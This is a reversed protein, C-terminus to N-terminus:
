SGDSSNRATFCSSAQCVVALTCTGAASGYSRIAGGLLTGLTKHASTSDLITGTDRVYDTDWGQCEVEQGVPMWVMVMSKVHDGATRLERTASATLLWRDLARLVPDVCHPHLFLKGDDVFRKWLGPEVM